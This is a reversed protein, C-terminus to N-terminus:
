TQLEVVTLGVFDPIIRSAGANLLAEARGNRTVGICRIGAATAAQVGCPADELVLLNKPAIRMRQAALEYIAPHPKGAAVDDGTIVAVFKQQLSHRQLTRWTRTSSASTAIAMRVGATELDHLFDAVGPLLKVNRFNEEFFLDKRHGYEAITEAPLNGFFHRLIEDRRRGELIYELDKEPVSKGLTNLFKKWAQRHVPHSDILVGDMDFIVGELM